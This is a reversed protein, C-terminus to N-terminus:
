CRSRGENESGDGAEQVCGLASINRELTISLVSSLVASSSQIIHLDTPDSDGRSLISLGPDSPSTVPQAVTFIGSSHGRRTM